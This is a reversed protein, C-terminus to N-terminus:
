ESKKAAAAMPKRGFDGIGVFTEIPKDVLLMGEIAPPPVILLERERNTDFKERVDDRIEGWLRGLLNDGRLVNDTELVAGWERDKKSQEVLPGKGSWRVLAAMRRPYSALKIRLVWRMMDPKIQEWDPRSQKPRSEKRAKMKAQMAHPSSMIDAQWEPNHPYRCMQFLAESSPITLGCIQIPFGNSMNSLDGYEGDVKYIVACDEYRTGQWEWIM